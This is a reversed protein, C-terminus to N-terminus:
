SYSASIGTVEQQAHGTEQAQDRESVGHRDTNDNLSPRHDLDLKTIHEGHHRDPSGLTTGLTHVESTTQRKGFLRFCEINGM